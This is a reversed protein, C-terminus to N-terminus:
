QEVPYHGGPFRVAHYGKFGVAQALSSGIRKGARIQELVGAFDYRPAWGLERRARDNVYVRDISPFMSWGAAAYTEEYGPVRRSVVAPADLRLMRVDDPRFPTTASIVYRGFGVTAAQALALLHAAVVDEIDVRRYLYENAKANADAYQERLRPDDDPDPFFRATRLIVCPLRWKRHFLECTAEAAVKTVGYINKPAGPVDETIWAADAGREPVLAVGFASTTSTFVFTQVRGSVSAELLNLTGTINTDVFAQRSHTAVHPKHLAAAHLVADAGALSEEVFRRDSISGVRHTFPSERIDIGVAEDGRSVLTRM